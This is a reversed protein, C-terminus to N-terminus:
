VLYSDTEHARLHTYSVSCSSAFHTLQWLAGSKVLSFVGVVHIAHWRLSSTCLPPNPSLHAVHWLSSFHFDAFNSWSLSVLNGSDPLCTVVLHSAQWLGSNLAAASFSAVVQM